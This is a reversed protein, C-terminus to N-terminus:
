NHESLLSRAKMFLNQFRGQGPSYEQVQASWPGLRAAREDRLIEAAAFWEGNPSHLSVTLRESAEPHGKLTGGHEDRWRFVADLGGDIDRADVFWSESVVVLEEAGSVIVAVMIKELVDKGPDRGNMLEQVFFLDREGDRIGVVYAGMTLDSGDAQLQSLGDFMLQTVGVEDVLTEPWDGEPLLDRRIEVKEDM